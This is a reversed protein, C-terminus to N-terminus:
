RMPQTLKRTKEEDSEKHNIKRRRRKFDQDSQWQSAVSSPYYDTRHIQQQAGATRRITM